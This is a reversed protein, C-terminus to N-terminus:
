VKIHILRWYNFYYKVKSHQEKVYVMLTEYYRLMYSCQEKTNKGDGYCLRLYGEIVCDPNPPTFDPFQKMAEFMMLLTANEEKCYGYRQILFLIRRLLIMMKDEQKAKDFRLKYIRIRIVIYIFIIIISVLIALFLILFVYAYTKEKTLEMKQEKPQVPEQIEEEHYNENLYIRFDSRKADYIDGARYLYEGYGPTPEFTIWGLGDLYADVWAHANNGTIEYEYYRQDMPLCYGQVYRTPINVCRALIAMATAYYTCYGEKSEFLFYDLLNYGDPVKAPTTTYTFTNLYAEIAKLKEYTTSKDETLKRALEYVRESIGKPVQTYNKYISEKRENLLESINEIEDEHDPLTKSWRYVEHKLIEFDDIPADADYTSLFDDAAKTGLKIEVSKTKYNAHYGPLSGFMVRGDEQKVPSLGKIPLIVCTKMPHFATKTSESTLSIALERSSIIKGMYYNYDSHLIANMLEFLDLEYDPVKKLIGKDEVNYEWHDECFENKVNGELYICTKLRTIDQLSLAFESSAEVGNGLTADESYGSFAISFDVEKRNAVLSEIRFVIEEGCERIMRYVSKIFNFELPQNTTPFMCALFLYVAVFPILFTTVRQSIERDAKALRQYSLEIACLFIFSLIFAVLYQNVTRNMVLFLVIVGVGVVALFYRIWRAKTLLYLPFCLLYIASVSCIMYAIEVGESVERNKEGARVLMFWQYYEEWLKTWDIKVKTFFLTTLIAIVIVIIYPIPTKKNVDFARIVAVWFCGLLVIIWISVDIRFFECISTAVICYLLMTSSFRHLHKQMFELLKM